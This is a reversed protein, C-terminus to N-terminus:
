CGKRNIEDHCQRRKLEVEWRSKGSFLLTAVWGDGNQGNSTLAEDAGFFNHVHQLPGKGSMIHEGKIVGGEKGVKVHELLCYQNEPQAEPFSGRTFYSVLMEVLNIGSSLYVGIPTQSPFRADIELIFLKGGSEIVELDMIGNLQIEEAIAVAMDELIKMSKASLLTPAAVGCCDFESDMFLDTVQFTRYCGPGGIVEISYSPGELYQQVVPNGASRSLARALAAEDHVVEVGASGSADDPKVVLPFSAEAQAAPIPYGLKNFVTNSRNKSQSLQFSRLDLIIPVELHLAWDRILELSDVDELAPFIIDVPALGEPWVGDKKFEFEIFEDVLGRAACSTDRDILVTEYGAKHALFAVEVGQLKGGVVAIRM